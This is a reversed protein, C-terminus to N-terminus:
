AGGALGGFGSITAGELGVAGAGAGISGVGALYPAAVYATGAAIPLMGPQQYWPDDRKGSFGLTLPEKWLDEFSWGADMGTAQSIDLGTIDEVFDEGKDILKSFVSM